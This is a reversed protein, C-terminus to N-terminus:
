WKGLNCGPRHLATPMRGRFSVCVCVCVCLRAHGCYMKRRRRSVCFTILCQTLLKGFCYSTILCVTDILICDLPLPLPLRKTYRKNLAISMELREPIARALSPDCTLTVCIFKFHSVAPSPFTPYDENTSYVATEEDAQSRDNSSDPQFLM